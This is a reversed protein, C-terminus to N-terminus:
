YSVLKVKSVHFKRIIYNTDSTESINAVNIGAYTEIGDPWYKECKKQNFFPFHCSFLLSMLAVLLSIVVYSYVTNFIVDGNLYRVLLMADTCTHTPTHTCTGYFDFTFHQTSRGLYYIVM